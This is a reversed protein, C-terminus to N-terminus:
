FKIERVFRRDFFPVSGAGNKLALIIRKIIEESDILLDIERNHDIDNRQLVVQIIDTINEHWGGSVMKQGYPEWRTEFFCSPAYKEDKEFFELITKKNCTLFFKHFKTMKVNEKEDIEYLNTPNLQMKVSFDSM